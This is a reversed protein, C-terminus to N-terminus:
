KMFFACEAKWPEALQKWKATEMSALGVIAGQYDKLYYRSLSEFYRWRDRQESKQAVKVLRAAGEKAAMWDESAFALEVAM